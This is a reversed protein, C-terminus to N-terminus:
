LLMYLYLCGKYIVNNLLLVIGIMVLSIIPDEHIGHYGGVDVGVDFIRLRKTVRSRRVTGVM